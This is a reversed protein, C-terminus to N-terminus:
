RASRARVRGRPKVRSMPGVRRTARRSKIRTREKSTPARWVGRVGKLATKRTSTRTKKGKAASQRLSKANQKKKSEALKVAESQHPMPNEGRKKAYTLVEEMTLTADRKFRVRTLWPLAAKRLSKGPDFKPDVKKAVGEALLLAKSAAIFSSPMEISQSQLELM